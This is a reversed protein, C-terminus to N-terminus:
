WVIQAPDVPLLSANTLDRERIVGILETEAITVREAVFRILDDPKTEDPRTINFSVQVQGRSPLAFGLSRVGAFGPVGAERALRVERAISKAVTLDSGALNVNMAILFDREGVITAGLRANARGPGFDPDFESDILADFGGRRLEPLSVAHRGRESKEYLFVPIEYQHALQAAFDVVFRNDLPPEPFIFPCVDLAGLFPHAGAHRLMDLKAFAVQALRMLTSTVVTPDGSFASVTRNHDPDSRLYHIRVDAEGLIVAFRQLLEPDRGFSWNPVTLVTL